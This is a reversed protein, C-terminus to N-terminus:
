YKKIEKIKIQNIINNQVFTFDLLKQLIDNYGKLCRVSSYYNLFSIINQILILDIAFVQLYCITWKYDEEDNNINCKKLIFLIFFIMFITLFILKSVIFRHCKLFNINEILKKLCQKVLICMLILIAIQFYGKMNYYFCVLMFLCQKFYMLLARILSNRTYDQLLYMELFENAILTFYLKQDYQYYNHNINIRNVKNINNNENKIDNFLIVNTNNKKNTNNQIIQKDLFNKFESMNQTNQDPCAQSQSIYNSQKRPNRNIKNNNKQSNTEIKEIQYNAKQIDSKSRLRQRQNQNNVNEAENQATIHDKVPEMQFKSTKPKYEEEEFNKVKRNRFYSKYDLFYCIICAIFIYVTVVIYVKFMLKNTAAYTKIVKNECKGDKNLVLGNECELCKINGTETCRKCSSHCHDCTNTELNKFKNQPCETKCENEDLYTNQQCYIENSCFGNFLYLGQFCETCQNFQKCNLCNSDCPQCNGQSDPFFSQDCELKCQQNQTLFYNQKCSVCKGKEICAKCNLDCLECKQTSRKLYSGEECTDCTNSNLCNLCMLDCQQCKKNQDEFQKNDCNDACKKTQLLVQNNNCTICQNNVIGNECTQCNDDCKECLNSRTNIYYGANCTNCSIANQCTLCSANCQQCKRLADAYQNQQCSIVCKKDQTLFNNLQCETCQDNTPGNECAVCNANCQECRNTNTNTNLYQGKNCSTCTDANNDCTRCNASCHSCFQTLPNLYNGDACTSCSTNNICSLCSANCPQCKRTNDPYQNPLCTDKCTQNTQLYQNNNCTLCSTKSDNECTTCQADCPECKSTNTNLFNGNVCLQCSNANVCKLCLNICDRCQPIDVQTNDLYQNSDCADVCKQNKTQLVKSSNCSTCIDPTDIQCTKCKINICTQCEKLDNIYYGQDCIICTYKNNCLICGQMCATCINNEVFTGQPCGVCIDDKFYENSKCQVCQLNNTIHENDRCLINEISYLYVYKDSNSSDGAILAKGKQFSQRFRQDIIPLTYYKYKQNKRKIVIVQDFEQDYSIDYVVNGFIIVSKYSLIYYYKGFNISSSDPSMEVEKFTLLDYFKWKNSTGLCIIKKGIGFDFIDSMYFKDQNLNLKKKFTVTDESFILQVVFVTEVSSKFGLDLILAIDNDIDIVHLCKYSPYQALRYKKGKYIMHALFQKNYDDFVIINKTNCYESIEYVDKSPIMIQNCDDDFFPTKYFALYDSNFMIKQEKQIVIQKNM